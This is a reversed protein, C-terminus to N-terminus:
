HGTWTGLRKLNEFVGFEFFTVDVFNYQDTSGGSNGFDLLEELFKESLLRRSRDVGILGDGVSGRDLPPDELPDLLDVDEQDVDSREGLSDLRDSSHHRDDDLPIRFNRDRPRL